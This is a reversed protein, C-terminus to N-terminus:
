THLSSKPQSSVCRAPLHTTKNTKPNPRRSRPRHRLEADPVASKNRQWRSKLPPGKSCAHNNESHMEIPFSTTLVRCSEHDSGFESVEGAPGQNAPNNNCGMRRHWPHSPAFAPSQSDFPPQPPQPPQPLLAVSCPPHGRRGVFVTLSRTMLCSIGRRERHIQLITSYLAQEFFQFGAPYLLM